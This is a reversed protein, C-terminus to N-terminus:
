RALWPHSLAEAVTLAREQVDFAMLKQCLDRALPFDPWPESEWDVVATKLTQYMKRAGASGVTGDELSDITTWPTEGTMLIYCIVGVSWLDSQPCAEGLLAEPAIYGPTGVFSRTKPTTPSWEICTDFDILKVTKPSELMQKDIDFLINEPKVDRHILNNEHLTGIAILIERIIRKCESEPVEAETVLFNFLEGGECMPMVVFFQKDDELIEIIDLVHASQHRMSFLQSMVERWARESAPDPRKARVKIVVDMRDSRRFGKLVKGRPGGDHIQDGFDYYKEVTEGDKLRIFAKPRDKVMSDTKISLSKAMRDRATSGANEPLRSLSAKKTRSAGASSGRPYEMGMTGNNQKMQGPEDPLRVMGSGVSGVQVIPSDQRSSPRSSGRSGSRSNPRSNPRSGTGEVAAIGAVALSLRGLPEDPLRSMSNRGTPSSGSMKLPAFPESGSGRKTADLLLDSGSGSRQM